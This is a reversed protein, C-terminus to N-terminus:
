RGRPRTNPGAFSRASSNRGVVVWVIWILFLISIAASITSGAGYITGRAFLFQAIAISPILLALLRLHHKIARDVFGFFLGFAISSILAFSGASYKLDLVFTMPMHEYEVAYKNLSKAFTSAPDPGAKFEYGVKKMPWSLLGAGFRQMPELPTNTEPLTVPEMNVYYGAVNAEPPPAEGALHGRVPMLVYSNLWHIPFVILCGLLLSRASIHSFAGKVSLATIAAAVPWLVATRVGTQSFILISPATAALALAIRGTLPAGKAAIAIPVGSTALIAFTVSLGIEGSVYSTYSTAAGSVFAIGACSLVAVGAIIAETNSVEFSSINRNPLLKQGLIFGLVLAVVVSLYLTSTDLSIDSQSVIRSVANGLLDPASAIVILLLSYYTLTLWLVSFPSRERFM